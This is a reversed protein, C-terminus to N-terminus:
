NQAEWTFTATATSAQAATVNQVDFTFRLTRSTPNSAATFTALGTTWNTYTTSFNTLTGTYITSTPTFGTCTGFSGGTGVEVTANLYAALSGASTAYMRINAPTLTGSYTLKICNVVPAGPYMGTATFMASGADDDTLVVSGTSFSNSGNATTANFSAHSRTVVIVTLMLLAAVVATIRVTSIM